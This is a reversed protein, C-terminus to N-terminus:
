YEEFINPKGVLVGDMFEYVGHGDWTAKAGYFTLSYKVQLPMQNALELDENVEDMDEGSGSALNHSDRNMDLNISNLTIYMDGEEFQKLINMVNDFTTIFSLSIDKSTYEKKINLDNYTISHEKSTDKIINSIYYLINPEDISEMLYDDSDEIKLKVKEIEKKVAEVLIETTKCEEIEIYLKSAEEHLDSIKDQLPFYYYFLFLSVSAAILSFTILIKERKSLKKM